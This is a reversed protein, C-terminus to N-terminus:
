FGIAATGLLLEESEYERESYNQIRVRAQIGLLWEDDM